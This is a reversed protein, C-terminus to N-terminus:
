CASSFDSKCAAMIEGIAESSLILLWDRRGLSTPLAKAFREREREFGKM